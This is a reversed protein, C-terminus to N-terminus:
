DGGGGGGGGGGSDSSSSSSSSDYSSSSRSDDTSSLLAAAIIVNTTNDYFTENDSDRPRKRTPTVFVGVTANSTSRVVSNAVLTAGLSPKKPQSNIAVAHARVKAAYEAYDASHLNDPTRKSPAVPKRKKLFKEVWSFM